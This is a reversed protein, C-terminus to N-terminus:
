IDVDYNDRLYSFFFLIYFDHIFIFYLTVGGFFVSGM